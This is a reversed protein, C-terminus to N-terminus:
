YEALAKIYNDRLIKLDKDNLENSFIRIVDEPDGTRFLLGLAVDFKKGQMNNRIRYTVHEFLKWTVPENIVFYKFDNRQTDVYFHDSTESLKLFKKIRILAMGQVKKSGEMAFGEDMFAKQLEQVKEFTDVNKIRLAYFKKNNISISAFTADFTFDLYSKIKKNIRLFEEIRLYNKTIFFIHGPKDHSILFEAGYYGPLPSIIELAFTNPMINHTLTQVKEEKTIISFTEFYHNGNMFEHKLFIIKLYVFNQICLILIILITIM